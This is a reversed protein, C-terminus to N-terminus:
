RELEAVRLIVAQLLGRLEAVETDKAVRLAALEGDRAALLERLRTNAARLREVVEPGSSLFV